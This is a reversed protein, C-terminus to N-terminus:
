PKIIKIINAIENETKCYSKFAFSFNDAFDLYESLLEQALALDDYFGKKFTEHAKGSWCADMECILKKIEKIQQQILQCKNNINISDKSLLNIDISINKSITQM